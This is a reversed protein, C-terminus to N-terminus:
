CKTSITRCPGLRGCAHEEAARRGHHIGQGLVGKAAPHGLDSLPHRHPKPGPLGGFHDRGPQLFGSQPSCIPQGRKAVFSQDLAEVCLVIDLDKTARFDLGVKDMSLFCATGGILAYQDTFAEFHEKFRTLGRVM